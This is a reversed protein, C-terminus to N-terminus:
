TAEQETVNKQGAPYAPPGYDTHIHSRRANKELLLPITASVMEPPGALYISHKSLDSFDRFVAEGVTIGTVPMFNITEDSQALASLEEKLYLRNEHSTGWYLDIHEPHNQRISEQLLSRVPAVGMGGAIFLIAGRDAKDLTCHGYPGTVEVTDGTKLNNFAYSSAGGSGTDKIHVELKNKADHDPANALSYPRPPFDGFRIEVYQGAKFDMIQGDEVTMYFIRVNEGANVIDTISASVTNM